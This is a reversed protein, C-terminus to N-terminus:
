PLPTTYLIHWWSLESNSIHQPISGLRPCATIHDMSAQETDTFISWYSSKLYKLFDNKTDYNVSLSRLYSFSYKGILNINEDSM